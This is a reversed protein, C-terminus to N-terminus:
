TRHSSYTDIVSPEVNKINDTRHGTVDIKKEMLERLTRFLRDTIGFKNGNSTHEEKAVSRDFRNHNGESNKNISASSFENDGEM